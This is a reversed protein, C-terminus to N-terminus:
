GADLSTPNKKWIYSMACVPSENRYCRRSPCGGMDSVYNQILDVLQANDLDVKQQQFAPLDMGEDDETLYWYMLLLQNWDLTDIREGPNGQLPKVRRRGNVMIYETPPPPEIFNLNNGVWVLEMRPRPLVMVDNMDQVM